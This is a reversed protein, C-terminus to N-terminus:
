GRREGEAAPEAPAADAPALEQDIPQAHGPADHGLADHGLADHGPADHGLVEALRRHVSSLRSTVETRLETLEAVEREAETTSITLREGAFMLLAYLRVLARAQFEEARTSAEAEMRRCRETTEGLLQDADARTRERLANTEQRTSAQLETLEEEALQMLRQIRVGAGALSSRQLLELRTTADEAERRLHELVRALEAAQGLAADRDAEVMALRGELAEIYDVVQQRHFGRLVTEFPPHLPIVEDDSGHM